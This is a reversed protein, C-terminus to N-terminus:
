AVTLRLVVYIYATIAAGALLPAWVSGISFRVVFYLSPVTLMLWFAVLFTM